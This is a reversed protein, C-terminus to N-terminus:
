NKELKNMYYASFVKKVHSHLTNLGNKLFEESKRILLKRTGINQCYYYFKNKLELQINTSAIITTSNMRISELEIPLDNEIRKLLSELEAIKADKLMEKLGLQRAFDQLCWNLWRKYHNMDTQLDIGESVIKPIESEITSKKQNLLNISKSRIESIIIDAQFKPLSNILKEVFINFEFLERYEPKTSLYFIEKEDKLYANNELRHKEYNDRLEKFLNKYEDALPNLYLNRKSVPIRNFVTKSHREVTRKYDSDVKTRCIFVNRTRKRVMKLVEKDEENFQVDYLYIFADCKLRDICQEYNSLKFNVTGVGPTDWILFNECLEKDIQYPRCEATCEVFDVKIYNADSPDLNFFANLFSSKGVKSRGLIGLSIQFSKNKSDKKIMEFLEEPDFNQEVAALNLEYKIWEHRHKIVPNEIAYVNKEVDINSNYNKVRYDNVKQILRLTSSMISFPNENDNTNKASEIMFVCKDVLKISENLRQIFTDITKQENKIDNFINNLSTLFKTVKTHIEQKKAENRIKPLRNQLYIKTFELDSWIQQCINDVNSKLDAMKISSADLRQTCISKFSDFHVHICNDCVRVSCHSCFFSNANVCTECDPCHNDTIKLLAFNIGLQGVSDNAKLNFIRNDNPCKITHQNSDLLQNLCKTCFSHGCELSRPKRDEEQHYMITCIDCRPPENITAM